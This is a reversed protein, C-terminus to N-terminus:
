GGVKARRKMWYLMGVGVTFGILGLVVPKGANFSTNATAVFYNVANTGEGFDIQASAQSVTAALAVCLAVLKGIRNV